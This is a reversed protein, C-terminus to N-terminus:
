KSGNPVLIINPHEPTELGLAGDHARLRRYVFPLHNTTVDKAVKVSGDLRRTWRVFWLFMPGLVIVLDAIRDFHDALWSAEILM